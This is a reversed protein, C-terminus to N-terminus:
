INNNIISSLTANNTTLMENYNKYNILSKMALLPDESIKALGEISQAVKEYNNAMNLVISAISSPVPIKIFEKSFSRYSNAVGVAMKLATADKNEVGTSIYGLEKGLDPYKEILPKVKKAFLVMDEKKNSNKITQNSITYADKLPTPNVKDGVTKAAEAMTDENLNGSEQLSMILAFFQRSIIENDTLNESQNSSTGNTKALEKKKALIAEKNEPGNKTPDFGWLSEEWDAIGNANSDKEVLDKVLLKTETRNNINSRNKFYSIVRYVGFGLAIIIIIALVKIVFNKSPLYDKKM